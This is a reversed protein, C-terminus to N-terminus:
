LSQITYMQQKFHIYKYRLQTYTLTNVSVIYNFNANDTRLNNKLTIVGNTSNIGFYYPGITDGIM